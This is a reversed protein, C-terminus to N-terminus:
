ICIHINQFMAIRLHVSSAPLSVSPLSSCAPCLSIIEIWLVPDPFAWLGQCVLALTFGFPGFLELHARALVFIGPHRQSGGVLHWIHQMGRRAWHQWSGDWIFYLCVQAPVFSSFGSHIVNVKLFVHVIHWIFDWPLSM